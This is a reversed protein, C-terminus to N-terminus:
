KNASSFTYCLNIDDIVLINTLQLLRELVSAQFIGHVSFCPLSYGMPDCLTPCSQSIESHISFLSLM